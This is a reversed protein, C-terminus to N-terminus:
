FAILHFSFAQFPKPFFLNLLIDNDCHIIGGEKSMEAAKKLEFRNQFIMQVFLFDKFSALGQFWVNLYFYKFWGWGIEKDVVMECFLMEDVAMDDVSWKPMLCKM